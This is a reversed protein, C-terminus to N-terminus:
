EKVTFYSAQEAERRMVEDIPVIRDEVMVLDEVSIDDTFTKRDSVGWRVRAFEATEGTWIEEIMGTPNKTGKQNVYDGIKLAREM